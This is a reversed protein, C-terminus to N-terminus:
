DRGTALWLGVASGMGVTVGFLDLYVGLALAPIAYLWPRRDIFRLTAQTARILTKM